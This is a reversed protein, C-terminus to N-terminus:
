HNEWPLRDGSVNNKSSVFAHKADYQSQHTLRMSRSFANMARTEREHATSLKTAMEGDGSDLAQWMLRSLREAFCTHRCLAKLTGKHEAKFWGPPMSRVTDLWVVREDPLLEEPVENGPAAEAALEGVEKDAASKRGRRQSM